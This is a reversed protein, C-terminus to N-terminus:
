WGSAFSHDISRLTRYDSSSLEILEEVIEDEEDDEVEGRVGRYGTGKEEGRMKDLSDGMSDELETLLTTNESLQSLLNPTTASTRLFDPNLVESSSCFAHNILESSGPREDFDYQFCQKLFAKGESSLCDPMKPGKEQVCVSYVAKAQSPFAPEGTAMEVISVGLSWIDTKLMDFKVEGRRDARTGSEDVLSLEENKSGTQMVEPAMYICTGVHGATFSEKEVQLANEAATETVRATGFDALKVIGDHLLLNSPKIDRHAIKARHLFCLGELIQLTYRRVVAECLAGWKRIAQQVSGGACFEMFVFLYKKTTETGLYQVINPHELSRLM